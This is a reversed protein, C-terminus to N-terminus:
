KLGSFGYSGMTLQHVTFRSGKLEEKKDFWECYIDGDEDLFKVTMIPGGSKLQVVDGPKFESM